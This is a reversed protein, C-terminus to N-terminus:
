KTLEKWSYPYLPQLIAGVQKAVEQIEKQAHPDIRQNYMNAWGYLTGSMVIETYMSQPLVMRAQEPCVGEDLLWRYYNSMDEFTSLPDDGQPVRIAVDDSSGQKVNDAAKRWVDPVYFEPEDTVYRRSIESVTFGVQHKKLQNAVFIPIKFHLTAGIGNAFPAWHSPMKKLHSLGEEFDEMDEENDNSVGYYAALSMDYVFDDWEVRTCGRALYAILSQDEKTLEKFPVEPYGKYNVGQGRDSAVKIWESEKGFSVRANNVVDLDTGWHRKYTVKM